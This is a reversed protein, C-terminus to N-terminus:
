GCLDGRGTVDDSHVPAVAPQIQSLLHPMTRLLVGGDVVEQSVWIMMMTM